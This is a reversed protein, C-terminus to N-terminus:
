PPVRVRPNPHGAFRRSHLSPAACGITAFNEVTVEYRLRTRDETLTLRDVMHTRPGAPVNLALGSSDAEFGTTDIM